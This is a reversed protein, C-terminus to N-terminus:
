QKVRLAYARRHAYQQTSHGLNGAFVRWKVGETPRACACVAGSFVANTANEPCFVFRCSNQKPGYFRAAFFPKGGNALGQPCLM